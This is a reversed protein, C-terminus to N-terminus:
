SRGTYCSWLHVFSWYIGGTHQGVDEGTTCICIERAGASSVATPIIVVQSVGKAARAADARGAGTPRAHQRLLPLDLELLSLGGHLASTNSAKCMHPAPQTKNRCGTPMTRLEMSVSSSTLPEFLLWNVGAMRWNEAGFDTLSVNLHTSYNHIRKM